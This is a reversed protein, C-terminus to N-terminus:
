GLENQLKRKEGKPGAISSGTRGAVKPVTAAM